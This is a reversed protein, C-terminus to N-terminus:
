ARKSAKKPAGLAGGDRPVRDKRHDWGGFWSVRWGDIDDGLAAPKSLTLFKAQISM